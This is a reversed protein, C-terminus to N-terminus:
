GGAQEVPPGVPELDYRQFIAQLRAMDPPGPPLQRMEELMQGVRSDPMTWTLLRCPSTGLNDGTHPTGRPVYGFSGAPMTITRDGVRATFEGELVYIAEDYTRHVHLPMGLRTAFVLEAVGLAGGTEERGAKVTATTGQVEVSRGEGPLRAVVQGTEPM